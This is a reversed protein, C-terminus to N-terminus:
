QDGTASVVDAYWEPRFACYLLCSNDFIYLYVKEYNKETPACVAQGGVLAAFNYGNDVFKM